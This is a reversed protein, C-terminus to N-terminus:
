RKGGGARRGWGSTNQRQAIATRGMSQGGVTGIRGSQASRQAGEAATKAAAERAASRARMGGQVKSVISSGGRVVNSTARGLRPSLDIGGGGLLMATISQVQMMLYLGAGAVLLMGVAISTQSTSNIDAAALPSTNVPNLAEFTAGVYLLILAAVVNYLSATIMFKLWGDFLFNAPRWILFPVMIPGMILGIDVVVTALLAVCLYFVLCALLAILALLRVGMALIFDGVNLLSSFSWSSQGASVCNPLEGVQEASCTVEATTGTGMTARLMKQLTATPNANNGQITKSLEGFGERFFSAVSTGTGPLPATWITLLTAVFGALFVTQVASVVSEVFGDGLLSKVFTWTLVLTLVAGLLPLGMPLFTEHLGKGTSAAINLLSALISDM